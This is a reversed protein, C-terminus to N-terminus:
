HAKNIEGLPVSGLFFRVEMDVKDPYRKVTLSHARWLILGKKIWLTMLFEFSFVRNKPHIYRLPPLFQVWM